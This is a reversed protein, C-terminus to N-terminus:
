MSTLIAWGYSCTTQRSTAAPAAPCAVMLVCPWRSGPRTGPWPASSPTCPACHKFACQKSFIKWFKTCKSIMQTWYRCKKACKHSKKDPKQGINHMTCHECKLEYWVYITTVKFPLYYISKRGQIIRYINKCPKLEGDWSIAAVSHIAGATDAHGLWGPCRAGRGRPFGSSILRRCNHCRHLCPEM